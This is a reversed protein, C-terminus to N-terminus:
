ASPVRTHNQTLIAPPPTQKGSPLDGLLPVLWGLELSEVEDPAMALVLHHFVGGRAPMYTQFSTIVAKIFKASYGTETIILKQTQPSPYPHLGFYRLVIDKQRSGTKMQQFVTHFFKLRAEALNKDDFGSTSTPSENVDDYISYAQREYDGSDEEANVQPTDYSAVGYTRPQINLAEDLHADTFMQKSTAPKGVVPAEEELKRSGWRYRGVAGTPTNLETLLEERSPQRGLENTLRGQVARIRRSREVVEYPVTFDHEAAEIRRRITTSVWQSLYNTASGSNKENYSLLGRIFGSIGEQLVDEYPIRSSWAKRRAFEKSAIDKILPLASLILIEQSRTGARRELLLRNREESTLSDGEERLRTNAASGVRVTPVHVRLLELTLPQENTRRTIRSQM